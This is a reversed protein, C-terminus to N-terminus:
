LHSMSSTVNIERTVSAKQMIFANQPIGFIVSVVGKVSTKSTTEAHNPMRKALLLLAGTRGKVPVVNGTKQHLVKVLNVPNLVDENLVKRTMMMSSVAVTM